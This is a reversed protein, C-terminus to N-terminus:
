QAGFKAPPLTRTLQGFQRTSLVKLAEPAARVKREPFCRYRSLADKEGEHLPPRPTLQVSVFHREQPNKKVGKPPRNIHLKQVLVSNDVTRQRYLFPLFFTSLVWVEPFGRDM